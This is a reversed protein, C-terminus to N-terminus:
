RRQKRQGKASSRRKSREYEWRVGWLMLWWSGFSWVGMTAIITPGLIAPHRSAFKKQPALSSRDSCSMTAYDAARGSAACRSDLRRERFYVILFITWCIVSAAICILAIKRVLEV